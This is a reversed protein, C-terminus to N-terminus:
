RVGLILSAERKSMEKEFGGTYYKSFQLCMSRVTSLVRVTGGPLAEVTQNVAKNIVGWHRLLFRGGFGVAALGLGAAIM